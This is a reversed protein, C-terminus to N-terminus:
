GNAARILALQGPVWRPNSGKTMYGFEKSLANKDTSYIFRDKVYGVGTAPITAVEFSEHYTDPRGDYSANVVAYNAAKARIVEAVEDMEQSDGVIKAAEVYAKRYVRAM